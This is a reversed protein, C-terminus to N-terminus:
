GVAVGGGSMIMGGNAPSYVKFAVECAIGTAVRAGSGTSTFNISTTNGIKYCVRVNNDPGLDQNDLYLNTFGSPLSPSDPGIIAALCLNKVTDAFANLTITMNLPDTTNASQSNSQVIANSGNSGRKVFNFETIAWFISQISNSSNITVQGATPQPGQARFLSIRQKNDSSNVQTRILEWTLGNGSVTPQAPNLSDSDEMIAIILLRNQKPSISSTNFSTSGGGKGSTLLTATIDAM